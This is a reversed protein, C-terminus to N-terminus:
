PNAMFSLMGAMMCLHGVQDTSIHILLPQSKANPNREKLAAVIKEPVNISRCCLKAQSGKEALHLLLNEASCLLCGRAFSIVLM